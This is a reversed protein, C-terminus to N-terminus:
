SPQEQQALKGLYLHKLEALCRRPPLIRPHWFNTYTRSTGDVTTMLMFALPLGHTDAAIHSHNLYELQKGQDLGRWARDHIGLQANLDPRFDANAVLLSLELARMIAADQTKAGPALIEYHRLHNPALGFTFPKTVYAPRHSWVCAAAAISRPKTADEARGDLRWGAYTVGLRGAALAVLANLASLSDEWIQTVM